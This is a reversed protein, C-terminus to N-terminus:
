HVREDTKSKTELGMQERESVQDLISLFAAVVCQTRTKYVQGREYRFSLEEIAKWDEDKLLDFNFDNEKKDM